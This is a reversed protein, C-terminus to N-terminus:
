GGKSIQKSVFFEILSKSGVAVVYFALASRIGGYWYGTYMAGTVVIVLYIQLYFDYKQKEAIIILTSLPSVIFQIFFLFSLIQAFEGAQEWQEGFLFNFLIPAYLLLLLFPVVGMFFLVRFTKNFLSICESNDNLDKSAQQRFVDKISNGITNTPMTIVKNYLGISGLATAGFLNSILLIHLQQGIREFFVSPILFKPYNIFRQSIKIIETLSPKKFAHDNKLFLLVVNTIVAGITGLILGLGGLDLHYGILLSVSIFVIVGYVRNRALITYKKTRNFWYYLAQYIGTLTANLALLLLLIYYMDNELAPFFVFLVLTVFIIVLGVFISLIFILNVITWSSEDEKSALIATEYRGTVFISVFTLIASYLTYIAFDEPPYLRTIIPMMVIYIVQAFASGSALTIVNKKFESLNM